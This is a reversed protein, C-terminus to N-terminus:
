WRLWWPLGPCQSVLEKSNIGHFNWPFSPFTRWEVLDIGCLLRDIVYVAILSTSGLIWLFTAMAIGKAPVLCICSLLLWAAIPCKELSSFLWTELGFISLFVLSFTIFLDFFFFLFSFCHLFPCRFVMHIKEKIEFTLFFEIYKCINFYFFVFYLPESNLTQGWFYLVAM